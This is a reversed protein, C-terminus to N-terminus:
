LMAQMTNRAFCLDEWVKAKDPQIRLLYAPHYTVILPIGSYEHLKGRLSAITAGTNLLNQAAVKGLAIILKPKILEIQRTLYPECQQAESPGPNRNGPPRCKVINTIYINKGRKLNIAGLMNDLLKGAPGVFPEGKVDEEVGPAEGVCLWDANQEGVGFVTKTRAQCLSCATCRAVSAELQAWDLHLIQLRRDNTAGVPPSPAKSMHSVWYNESTRWLPILGLERLIDERRARM